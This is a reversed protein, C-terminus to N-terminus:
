EKCEAVLAEFAEMDALELTSNDEKVNVTIPFVIEPVEDPSNKRWDKLVAIVDRRNEVEIIEGDSMVIAIPLNVEYCKNELFRSFYRCKRRDHKFERCEKRLETIQEESTVEIITSDIREVSFPFELTPKGEVSPSSEKWAKLATVFEERDNVETTTSDPFVITVPFVIKYCRHHGGLAGDRFDKYNSFVFNDVDTWVEEKTCSTMIMSIGLLAIVLSGFFKKM